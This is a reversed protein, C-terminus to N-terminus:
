IFGILMLIPGVILAFVSMLAAGIAIFSKMGDSLGNFKDILWQLASVLLKVAPLLAEGISILLEEFASNLNELAGQLNDKMVDRMEKLAGNSNEIEGKLEGYEDGLGELMANFSKGHNLGAILTLANEREADTMNDLEEKVDMLVAEMGRFNGENDFVAVGMDKLADAAPGTEKTLRSM